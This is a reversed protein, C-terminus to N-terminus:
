AAFQGGLAEMCARAWAPIDSVATAQTGGVILQKAKFYGARFNWSCFGHIAAGSADVMCVEEGIVRVDPVTGKAHAISLTTLNVGWATALNQEVTLADGKAHLDTIVLPEADQGSAVANAAFAQDGNLAAVVESTSDDTGSLTVEAVKVGNRYLKIVTGDWDTDAAEASTLTARSGKDINAWNGNSVPTFLDSGTKKAYMGGPRLVNTQGSHGSDTTGTEILIPGGLVLTSLQVDDLAMRKPSKHTVIGPLQSGYRM